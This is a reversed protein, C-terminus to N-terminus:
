REGFDLAQQGPAFGRGDDREVTGVVLDRHVRYTALCDEPLREFAQFIDTGTRDEYQRDFLHERSFPVAMIGIRSQLWSESRSRLVENCRGSCATCASTSAVACRIM